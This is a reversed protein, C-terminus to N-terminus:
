SENIRMRIWSLPCFLPNWSKLGLVWKRSTKSRNSPGLSGESKTVLQLDWLDLHRSSSIWESEAVVILCNTWCQLLGVFSHNIFKEFTKSFIAIQWWFPVTVPSSAGGLVLRRALTTGRGSRGCGPRHSATMTGASWRGVLWPDAPHSPPCRGPDLRRALMEWYKPTFKSLLSCLKIRFLVRSWFQFLVNRCGESKLAPWHQAALELLVNAPLLQLWWTDNVWIPNGYFKIKSPQVQGRRGM